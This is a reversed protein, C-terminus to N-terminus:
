TEIQNAWGMNFRYILVLLSSYGESIDVSALWNILSACTVPRYLHISPEDCERVRELRSGPFNL